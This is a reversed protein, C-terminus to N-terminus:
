MLLYKSIDEGLYQEGAELSIFSFTNNIEAYGCTFIGVVTFLRNNSILDVDSGGSLALLNIKSGVRAGLQRSLESGLVINTPKSLDFAGSIMKVERAFGEDRQRITPSVARILSASQRGSTGAILSQAEYMPEAVIIGLEEGKCGELFTEEPTGNLQVRIHASSIEMISDIFGMQFGNMVSVVVILTMVGFCISLSALLGTVASRGTRDVKAFRRSVFFIWNM